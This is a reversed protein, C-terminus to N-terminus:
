CEGERFELLRHKLRENAGIMTALNDGPEFATRTCGENDVAAIAIGLLEGREAIELFNKLTKVVGDKHGQPKPVLRAVNFISM